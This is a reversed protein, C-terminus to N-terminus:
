YFTNNLDRIDSRLPEFLLLLVPLTIALEKCNAVLDGSIEIKLKLDFLGLKPCLEPFILFQRM